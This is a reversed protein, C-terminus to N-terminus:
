GTIKATPYAGMLRVSGTIDRGSTARPRAVHGRTVMDNAEDGTYNTTFRHCMDCISNDSVVITPSVGDIAHKRLWKWGVGLSHIGGANSRGLLAQRAM